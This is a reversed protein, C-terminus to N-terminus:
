IQAQDSSDKLLLVSGHLNSISSIQTKGFGQEEPMPRIHRAILSDTSYNVKVKGRAIKMSNITKLVKSHSKIFIREPEAHKETNM